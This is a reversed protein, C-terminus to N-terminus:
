GRCENHAKNILREMLPQHILFTRYPTYRNLDAWHIITLQNHWIKSYYPCTISTSFWFGQDPYVTTIAMFPKIGAVLYPPAIGVLGPEGWNLWLEGPSIRTMIAIDLVLGESVFIDGNGNPLRPFRFIPPASSNWNWEISGDRASVGLWNAERVWRNQKLLTMAEAVTTIGPRIGMFCPKPCDQPMLATWLDGNDYPQTRIFSMIVTFIFLIPLSLKPYFSIM